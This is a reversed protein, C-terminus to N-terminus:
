YSRPQHAEKRCSGSNGRRQFLLFQSSFHLFILLAAVLLIYFGLGLFYGLFYIGGLGLGLSWFYTIQCVLTKTRKMLAPVSFCEKRKNEVQEM